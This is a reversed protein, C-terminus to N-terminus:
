VVEVVVVVETTVIIQNLKASITCQDNIQPLSKFFTPQLLVSPHSTKLHNWETMAGTRDILLLWDLNGQCYHGRQYCQQKWGKQHGPCWPTATYASPWVWWRREKTLQPASSQKWLERQLERSVCLDGESVAEVLSIHHQVPCLWEGPSPFGSFSSGSQEMQKGLTTYRPTAGQRFHIYADNM